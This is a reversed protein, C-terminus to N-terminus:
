GPAHADRHFEVVRHQQDVAVDRMRRQRAQETDDSRGSEEVQERAVIEIDGVRQHLVLTSLSDIRGAPNAGDGRSPAARWRASPWDAARAQM